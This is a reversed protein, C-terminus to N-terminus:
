EQETVAFDGFKANVSKALSNPDIRISRGIKGASVTIIEEQLAVNDIYIPFNHLSRIGIPSNAGHEFGSTKVLDKLPVMGIKKNGSLKALKKYSLHMDLPLVAVVPGTKNGTTVLTKYINHEKIDQDSTDLSKTDGHKTVSFSISEYGINQKDLIKEVLTKSPTNKNKKM